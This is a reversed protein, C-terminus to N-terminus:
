SSEKPIAAELTRHLWEAAFLLGINDRQRATVLYGNETRILRYRHEADVETRIIEGM